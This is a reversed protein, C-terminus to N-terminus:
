PDNCRTTTEPGLTARPISRGTHPLRPNQPTTRQTRHRSRPATGPQPRQPRHVEPLVAPAPRQHERELRAALAQPPRLLLDRPRHRPHHRQAPCAGHGSGLDVVPASTRAPDPHHPDDRRPRRRRQARGPLHLLMVYRSTREVLTGIASRANTGVILDGEWHGPVARDDAEAPRESILIMDRIKSWSARRPEGRHRRIARGTRLHKHLDARLHGRGQVFLSQYITEHSVHMEPRKPFSRALDDRIQEPSWNRVLRLEVQLALEVRDLKRPKPRQARDRCRKEAAYPRYTRRQSSNRALERSITSPARGLEAAIRRIGAGGLRLDAIRLREEESLYRGSRPAREFPNKGGLPKSGDIGRVRICGSLMALLRAQERGTRTAGLIAGGPCAAGAEIGDAVSRIVTTNCRGASGLSRSGLCVDKSWGHFRRKGRETSVKM